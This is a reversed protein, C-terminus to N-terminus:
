IPNSVSSNLYIEVFGARKGLFHCKLGRFMDGVKQVQQKTDKPQFHCRKGKKKKPEHIHVIIYRVPGQSVLMNYSKMMIIYLNHFVQNVLLSICSQYTTAAVTCSIISM